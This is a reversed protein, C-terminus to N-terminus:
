EEATVKKFQNKDMIYTDYKGSVLNGKDDATYVLLKGNKADWKFLDSGCVKNDNYLHNGAKDIGDFFHPHQTLRKNEISAASIYSIRMQPQCTYSQVLLYVVPSTNEIRIITDIRHALTNPKNIDPICNAILSELPGCFGAMENGLKWQAINVYNITSDTRGTEWSYCRIQGDDSSVIHMDALKEHMYPFDYTMTEKDSTIWQVLADYAKAAQEPDDGLM